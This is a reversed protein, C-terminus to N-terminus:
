SNVGHAGQRLLRRGLEGFCADLYFHNIQAAQVWRNSVQVRESSFVWPKQRLLPNDIQLARTGLNGAREGLTAEIREISRYLAQAPRSM